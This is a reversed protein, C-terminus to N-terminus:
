REHYIEKRWEIREIPTPPMYCEAQNDIHWYPSRYGYLVTPNNYKAFDVPTIRYLSPIQPDDVNEVIINKVRGVKKKGIGPLSYLLSLIEDTRNKPNVMFCIENIMTHRLTFLFNRSRGSGPIYERKFATDKHSDLSFIRNYGRFPAKTYLHDQYGLIDGFWVSCDFIFREKNTPSYIRKVPIDWRDEVNGTQLVRAYSLLADLHTYDDIIVQQSKLKIKILQM